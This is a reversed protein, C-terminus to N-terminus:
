EARGPLHWPVLLVKAVFMAMCMKGTESKM